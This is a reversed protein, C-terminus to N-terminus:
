VLFLALLITVLNVIKILPNIAPGATDKCPDGVTDGTIAALHAISGKGGCNGHEIYKKANDWAGGANTLTLSLFVGNVLAGVNVGALLPFLYSTDSAFCVALIGPIVVPLLSPVLMARISEKTLFDVTYGYNPVRKGELIEPYDQFQDRVHEVVKGGIKGVYKMNLSSFIYPIVGGILCGIILVPNILSMNWINFVAGPVDIEVIFLMVLISSCLAAASVAYGKTIAKTTNGAADLEDTVARAKADIQSMEAIGGANDTMPGYADLTMIVVTLSIMSIVSIGIGIVGAMYFCAGFVLVVALITALTSEMGVSLGYIINTAHGNNSAEAISKVPRYSSDTYYTTIWIIAGTLAFGLYACSILHVGKTTIDTFINITSKILIESFLDTSWYSLAAISIMSVLMTNTLIRNLSSMVSQDQKLIYFLTALAGVCSTVGIIMSIYSILALNGSFCSIIVQLIAVVSVTYTEFVDSAMGACDGVNDGVNDAIVAPNRPDDEPLSQELKGVLDAGVDAAKTFIGGAVRGFISVLSAGLGLGITTYKLLALCAIFSTRYMYMCYYVPAFVTLFLAMLAFGTVIYSIIAGFNVATKAARARADYKECAQMAILVNSKVAVLMGFIGSMSSFVAGVMFGYSMAFGIGFFLLICSIIAIVFITNYQRLLFAYAGEKIYSSIRRMDANGANLTQQLFVFRAVGLTLLLVSSVGIFLSSIHFFWM